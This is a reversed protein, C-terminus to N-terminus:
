IIYIILLTLLIINDNFTPIKFLGTVSFMNKLEVILKSFLFSKYKYIIEYCM